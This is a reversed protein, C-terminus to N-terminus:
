NSISPRNKEIQAARIPQGSFTVIWDALQRAQERDHTIFFALKGSVWRRILRLTRAATEEDLGTLPEDLLYVTDQGCQEGYAFARAIAVRRQMGGSLEGPLADEWGALGLLSLYRAALGQHKRDLVLEVNDRASLSPVLRDEQFVFAFRKDELGTISGSDPQLLGCLLNLLTTKGAGSPAFFCIVGSDPLELSLDELVTLAGYRVTIHRLKM